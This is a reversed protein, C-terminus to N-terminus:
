IKWKTTKKLLWFRVLFLGVVEAVLQYVVHGVTLEFHTVVGIMLVTLFVAGFFTMTESQRISLHHELLYILAAVIGIGLWIPFLYTSSLLVGTAIMGISKMVRDTSYLYNAALLLSICPLGLAREVSLVVLFIILFILHRLFHIM